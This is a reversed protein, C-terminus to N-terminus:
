KPTIAFYAAYRTKFWYEVSTTWSTHGRYAFEYDCGNYSFPFVTNKKLTFSRLTLAKGEEKLYLTFTAEDVKEDLDKLVVKVNENQFFLFYPQDKNFSLWISSKVKLGCSELNDQIPKKLLTKDNVVKVSVAKTLSTSMSFQSVPSQSLEKIKTDALTDIMDLPQQGGDNATNTYIWSTMGVITVSWVMFLMLVVINIKAKKTLDPLISKIISQFLFYFVVLSIGSVGAISGAVEFIKLSNM